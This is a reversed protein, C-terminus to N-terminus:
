AGGGQHRLAKAAAEARYDSSRAVAEASVDGAEIILGIVMMLHGLERELEAHQNNLIGDPRGDFGHLLVKGAVQAVDGLEQVLLALRENQAPTLGNESTVIEFM